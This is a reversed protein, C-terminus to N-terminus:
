SFLGAILADDVRRPMTLEESNFELEYMQGDAKATGTSNKAVTLQAPTTLWWKNTADKTLIALDRQGAGLSEISKSKLADLKHLKLALKNNYFTSGNELNIASESTLTSINRKFQFRVFTNPTTLSTIVNTVPDVTVTLGESDAFGAELVGGINNDCNELIETIIPCAM